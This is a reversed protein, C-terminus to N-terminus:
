GQQMVIATHMQSAKDYSLDNAGPLTKGIERKKNGHVVKFRAKPNEKHYKVPTMGKIKMKKWEEWSLNDPVVYELIDEEDQSIM